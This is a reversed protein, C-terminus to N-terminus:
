DLQKIDNSKNTLLNFIREHTESLLMYYYFCSKTQGIRHIRKRAQAVDESVFPLDNFMMYNCNTFTLGTSATKYTAVLHKIKSAKFDDFVQQRKKDNVGGHIHPVGLKLALAEASDVHDTFIIVQEKTDISDVLDLTNKVSALAVEKKLTMFSKKDKKEGIEELRKDFVNKDAYIKKHVMDPLDVDGLMKRLMFKNLYKEKLYDINKYGHYKFFRKKGSLKILTKKMFNSQFHKHSKYPFSDFPSLEHIIRILNYVEGVNNKAPTGTLMLFYEPTTFRVHNFIRKSRLTTPTKIYHAEDLILVSEVQKLKHFSSYSTVTFLDSNPAFKKIENHWTGQLYSPCVITAKKNLKLVFDIAVLSKGLGMYFANLSHKKKIHFDVAEKQYDYLTYM